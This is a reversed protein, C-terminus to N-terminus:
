FHLQWEIMLAGEHKHRGSGLQVADSYFSHVYSHKVIAHENLVWNLGLSISRTRRAFRNTDVFGLDRLSDDAYLTSVRAAAVWAGSGTSTEPDFPKAPHVGKFSKSEGTLVYSVTAYAGHYQVTDRQAGNVMDERILMVESQAMVPGDFWAAEIGVRTRDGDLRTGGAFDMIPQGAANKISRGSQSADQEGYTAAIGFQLNRLASNSDAAFPHMMIRANFDQASNTDSGGTGNTISLGYEFRRSDVKGLWFMGHDEAPAFQNMISFRPFDIHRRSRVEELNFAVKMRGIMLRGNGKLFDAGLWGEELESGESTFNPEVRFVMVKAFRGALEPRMRRLDFGSDRGRDAEYLNLGAQFLGELVLENRGDLSRIFFGDEYGTEYGKREQVPEADAVHVALPQQEPTQPSRANVSPVTDQPGAHQPPQKKDQASVQLVLTLCLCSFLRLTM